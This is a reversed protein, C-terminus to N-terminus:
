RKIGNVKRLYGLRDSPPYGAARQNLWDVLAVADLGNWAHDHRNGTAASYLPVETQRANDHVFLGGIHRSHLTFRETPQDLAVHTTAKKM